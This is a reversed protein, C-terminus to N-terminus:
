QIDCQELQYSWFQLWLHIFWPGSCMMCTCAREDFVKYACLCFPSKKRVSSIYLALPCPRPISIPLGSLNLSVKEEWKADAGHSGSHLHVHIVLEPMHCLGHSRISSAM